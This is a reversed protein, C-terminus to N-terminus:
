RRPRRTESVSVVTTTTPQQSDFRWPWMGIAADLLDTVRQDVDATEALRVCRVTSGTGKLLGHPDPLQPGVFFFLNVWRPYAAVSCVAHRSKGDPSYGVVTASWNEYVMRTAGALRADVMALVEYTLSRIEDTYESLFGDLRAIADDDM